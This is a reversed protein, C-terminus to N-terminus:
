KEVKFDDIASFMPKPGGEVYYEEEHGEPIEYGEPRFPYRWMPIDELYMEPEGDEGCKFNIWKLWHKDDRQPYDDRYHPYFVGRTETRELAARFLMELNLVSDAAELCKAVTHADDGSLYPIVNKKMDEVDELVEKISEESKLILKDTGFGYREIRDFIDNATVETDRHLPAYIKEKYKAAQEYDIDVLDHEGAFIAMDKGVRVGTQTANGVGDGRHWGFYGSGQYSMKGAAWLAECDTKFRHDTKVPETQLRTDITIEPTMGYELTSYKNAKEAVYEEWEIKDPFLRGDAVDMGEWGISILTEDPKRLDVYLPGRGERVEKVMGKLLPVSIEPANPAYKMSINEGLQNFILNYGGYVPVNTGKFVIEIQTSFEINRIHAGARFAAGVGTGYGMFERGLKKFQCGHTAVCVAKAHFIHCSMDYMEFGIAGVAQGKNTLIEFVNVCNLMRVGLGLATKRLKELAKLEIGVGALESGVHEWMKISGDPNCSVQVGAVDRLWQVSATNTSLYDYLLEQDNLYPTQIQVMLETSDMVPQNPLHAVIGNGAKTSQGSFGAYGKEVILVDLDPNEQMARIATVLGAWGGGIILLDSEYVKGLDNLNGM